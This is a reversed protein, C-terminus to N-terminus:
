TLQRHYMAILKSPMLGAIVSKSISLLQVPNAGLLRYYKYRNMIEDQRVRISRKSYDSLFVRYDILIDGMNYIRKGALLLEAWLVFDECRNVGETKYMGVDIIDQRKMIVSPHTPSMRRMLEKPGIELESSEPIQTGTETLLNRSTGVVSYEPHSKIFALQTEIRTPHSIDDTDMRVLYVGSAYEIAKNLSASLGLNVENNLVVIRPDDYEKVIEDLNNQMGDNIIIFEFHPYTQDLMSQIAQKLHVENTKYESMVISVLESM